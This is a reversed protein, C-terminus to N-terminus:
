HAGPVAGDRALLWAAIATAYREHGAANPHADGPDVWLSRPDVGELASALDLASLGQSGALEKMRVHVDALATPPSTLDPLLVLGCPIGENRCWRGVRTVGDVVRRWSESGPAHLARHHEVSSPSLGLRVLLAIVRPALIRWLRSWSPGPLRTASERSEPDNPFYGLLVLDPAVKDGIEELWLAEERTGYALVGGNVVETAKGEAELKEAVRHVFADEEAVGWGMTVSDGLFLIRFPRPAGGATERLEPGRTGLSSIRYRVGAVEVECSPRLRHGLVPDEVVAVASFRRVRSTFGDPEPILRAVGELVLLFVVITGVVLALRRFVRRARGGDTPSRQEEPSSTM